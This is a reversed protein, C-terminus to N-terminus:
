WGDDVDKKSRRDLIAVAQDLLAREGVTWVYRLHDLRKGLLDLAGAVIMAEERDILMCEDTRPLFDKDIAM